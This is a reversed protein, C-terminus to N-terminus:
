VVGLKEAERYYGKHELDYNFFEFFEKLVIKNVRLKNLEILVHETFCYPCVSAKKDTCKICNAGNIAEKTENVYKKLRPILEKRLNPYLVTWAEIETMLCSPCIPSSVIEGCVECLAHSELVFFRNPLMKIKFRRELKKTSIL